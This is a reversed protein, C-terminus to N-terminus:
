TGCVQFGYQHALNSAKASNQDIQKGDDFQARADNRRTADALKHLLTAQDSLTSVYSNLTNAGDAPPPPPARFRAVAAAVLDGTKDYWDARAQTGSPQPGLAAKKKRFDICISDGRAIFRAKADSVPASTAKKKKKKTPHHSPAPAKKGGSTHHTSSTTRQAPASKAKSRPATTTGGASRHGTSHTTESRPKTTSTTPTTTSTASTTSAPPTSAQQNSKSSGCGAVALAAIVFGTTLPRRDM